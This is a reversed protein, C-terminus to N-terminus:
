ADGAELVLNNLYDISEQKGAQELMILVADNDALVQSRANVSQFKKMHGSILALANKLNVAGVAEGSLDVYLEYEPTFQVNEQAKDYLALGMPNGFTMFARKMADTEAEKIASEHCELSNNGYGNGFGHGERIVGGVDVRVKAYYAAEYKKNHYKDTYERQGVCQMLVTERNWGDHGFIRNAEQIVHWGEVYSVQIKGQQREKVRSKDLPKQLEISAKEWNVM